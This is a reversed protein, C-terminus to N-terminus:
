MPKYPRSDSLVLQQEPAVQLPMWLLLVGFAAVQVMDLM